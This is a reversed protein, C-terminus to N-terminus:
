PDCRFFEDDGISGLSSMVMFELSSPSSPFSGAGGGQSGGAAMDGHGRYDPLSGMTSSTRGASGVVVAALEDAQVFPDAGSSSFVDDSTCWSSSLQQTAAAAGEEAALQPFTRAFSVLNDDDKAAVIMMPNTTCTHEGYYTIAYKSPDTECAQVQRKADCGRDSKHTCRYYSRIFSLVM